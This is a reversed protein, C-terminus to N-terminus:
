TSKGRHFTKAKGGRKSSDPKGKWSKRVRPTRRKKPASSPPPPPASRKPRHDPGHPVAVTVMRPEKAMEDIISSLSGGFLTSGSFPAALLQDKLSKRLSAPAGKLVSARRASVLNALGHLLLSACDRHSQDLGAAVKNFLAANEESAPLKSAEVLASSYWDAYSLTHAALRFMRETKESDKGSLSVRDEGPRLIVRDLNSEAKVPVPHLSAQHVAYDSPKFGPIHSVGFTSGAFSASEGAAPAESSSGKRANQMLTLISSLMQGEPLSKDSSLDESAPLSRQLASTRADRPNPKLPTCEAPGLLKM